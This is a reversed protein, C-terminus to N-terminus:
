VDHSVESLYQRENHIDVAVEFFSFLKCKEQSRKLEEIIILVDIKIQLFLNFVIKVVSPCIVFVPSHFCFFVQHHKTLQWFADLGLDERVTQEASKNVNESLVELELIMLAYM